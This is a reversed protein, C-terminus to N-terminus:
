MNNILSVISAPFYQLCSYTIVISIVGQGVRTFLPLRQGEEVTDYVISKLRVNMAAAMVLLSVSGRIFLLQWCTLGPITMYMASTSTLHITKVFQGMIMLTSAQTPDDLPENNPDVRKHAIFNEEDYSVATLLTEQTDKKDM